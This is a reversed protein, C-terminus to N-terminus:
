RWAGVRSVERLTSDRRGRPTESRAASDHDGVPADRRGAVYCAKRGDMGLRGSGAEGSVHAFPDNGGLKWM